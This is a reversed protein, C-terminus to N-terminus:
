GQRVAKGVEIVQEIDGNVPLIDGVNVIARGGFATKIRKALATLEDTPLNQVFLTSPVGVFASMGDPLAAALEEVEYSFMPAPTCGDLYDLGPESLYKFYGKFNGDLHSSVLKGAKHLRETMRQYFPVCYRRWQRPSILTEDTHDSMIVLRGPAQAALEVQGEMDREAQFALFDEMADLHDNMAYIVREFGMYEHVLKGFPSRNIVIDGAGQDGLADLVKQAVEFKPEFHSREEAYRMIDLDEIRKIYYEQHSWSGDSAMRDMKTLEGKPTKLRSYQRDGETKTEVSVGGAYVKRCWGYLHAFFGWDYKKYIDFLTMGNFAAPMTHPRSHIPDNDFIFGGPAYGLAQGELRHRGIYWDTIDPFFPTQSPKRGELVDFLLKRHNTM